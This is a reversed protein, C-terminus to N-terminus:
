EQIAALALQLAHLASQERVSQRGGDFLCKVTHTQKATSVGLFVTGVPTENTGGTPGAIGTASIAVDVSLAIRAGRAMQSACESSVVGAGDIVEMTVGLLEHKIRPDYSVIGGMLVASAGSVSAVSASIMGGTLSEATGLTLGRSLFQNVVETSMQMLDTM